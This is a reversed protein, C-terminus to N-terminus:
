GFWSGEIPTPEGRPPECTWTLIGSLSTPSPGGFADGGVPDDPSRVIAVLRAEGAAATGSILVVDLIDRQTVEENTTWMPGGDDRSVYLDFGISGRNGDAGAGHLSYGVPTDALVQAPDTSM